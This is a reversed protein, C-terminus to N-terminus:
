STGYRVSGRMGELILSRHEPAIELQARLRVRIAGANAVRPTLLRGNNVLASYATILQVPTVQLYEGEGLANRVDRLGRQLKGAAERDSVGTQKGFGFSALTESLSEENLREGLTGFFYNCSYAIAEAANFPPLDRPHSCVTEFNKRSYHERCLTRSDKDILNARLAAL